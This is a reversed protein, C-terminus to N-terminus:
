EVMAPEVHLSTDHEIFYANLMVNIVLSAVEKKM